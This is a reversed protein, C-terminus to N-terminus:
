GQRQCVIVCLILLTRYQPPNSTLLVALATSQLMASILVTHANWSPSFHKSKLKTLLLTDIYYQFNYTNIWRFKHCMLMEFLWPEKWHRVPQKESSLQTPSLCTCTLLTQSNLLQLLQHENFLRVMSHLM